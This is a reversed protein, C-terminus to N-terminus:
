RTEDPLDPRITMMVRAVRRSTRGRKYGADYMSDLRVKNRRSGLANRIADRRKEDLTKEDEPLVERDLLVASLSGDFSKTEITFHLFMPILLVPIQSVLINIKIQSFFSVSLLYILHQPLFYKIPLYM